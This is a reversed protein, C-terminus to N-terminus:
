AGGLLTSNAANVIADVRQDIIDGQVLNLRTPGINMAADPTSADVCFAPRSNYSEAQRENDRM